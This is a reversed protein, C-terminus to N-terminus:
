TAATGEKWCEHSIMLWWDKALLVKKKLRGDTNQTHEYNNESVKKKDFKSEKFFEYFSELPSFNLSM